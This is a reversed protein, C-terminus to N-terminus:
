QNKSSNKKPYKQELLRHYIYDDGGGSNLWRLYGRVTLVLQAIGALTSRGVAQEPPVPGQGYQKVLMKAVRVEVEDM